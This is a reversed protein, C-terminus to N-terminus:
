NKVRLGWITERDKGTTPRAISSFIFNNIQLGELETEASLGFIDLYMLRPMRTLKIFASPHISCCRSLALHQLETLKLISCLSDSTLLFCDSIDLEILYPCSTVLDTINDDMITKTCGSLNLRIISCPLSKCILAVCIMDLSCWAVNLETLSKLQLLYVVCKLDLGECLALNLVSLDACQSIAKCCAENLICSELSLKKLNRCKSLLTALNDPSIMVISADFYQLQYIDCDKINQKINQSTLTNIKAQALRLVKIGRSLIRWLTDEHLNKRYLDLRNWLVGTQAIQYWRKCVMMCNVLDQKSLWKFILLIIENSLKENFDDNGLCSLIRKRRFVYLNKVDFIDSSISVQKGNGNRNIDAFSNPQVGIVECIKSIISKDGVTEKLNSVNKEM